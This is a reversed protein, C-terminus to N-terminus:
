SKEGLVLARVLVAALSVGMVYIVAYPWGIWSALLGAPTVIVLTLAAWLAIQRLDRKAM